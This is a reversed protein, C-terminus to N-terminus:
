HFLSPNKTYRGYYEENKTMFNIQKIKKNIIDNFIYYLIHPNGM